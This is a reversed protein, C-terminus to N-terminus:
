PNRKTHYFNDTIMKTIEELADRKLEIFTNDFYLGLFLKDYLKFNKLKLYNIDSEMTVIVDVTMSKYYSYYRKKSLFPIKSPVQKPFSLEVDSPRISYSEVTLFGESL